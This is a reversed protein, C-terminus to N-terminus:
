RGIKRDRDKSLNQKTSNEKRLNEEVLEPIGTASLLKVTAILDQQIPNQGVFEKIDINHETAVAVPDLKVEYPIELLIVDDPLSTITDDFQYYTHEIHNYFCFYQDESESLDLTDFDIKNWPAATERLERLRWDITFDSGALDIHPLKGNLREQLLDAHDSVPNNIERQDSELGLKQAANYDKILQDLFCLAIYQDRTYNLPQFHHFEQILYNEMLVVPYEDWGNFVERAKDFNKHEAFKLLLDGEPLDGYKALLEEKTINGTTKFLLDREQKSAISEKKKDLLSQIVESEKEFPMGDLVYANKKSDFKFLDRDEQDLCVNNYVGDIYTAEGHIFQHPEEYHHTFGVGYHDAIQLLAELNPYWRTDYYVNKDELYINQMKFNQATIYEPIHWKGTKLQLDQIEEFLAKVQEVKSNDGTFLVCNKCLNAM